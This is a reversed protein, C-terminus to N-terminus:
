IHILSLDVRTLDEEIVDDNDGYLVDFGVQDNEKCRKQFEEPTNINTYHPNKEEKLEELFKFIKHPNILQKKHNNKMGHKRKLELGILGAETPTKPFQSITNNVAEDTIPVNIVRDKLASWRSRPLQFIKQFIINKAIM